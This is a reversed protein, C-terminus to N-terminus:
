LQQGESTIAIAAINPLRSNRPVAAAAATRAPQLIELYAAPAAIKRLLKLVDGFLKKGFIRLVGGDQTDGFALERRKGM